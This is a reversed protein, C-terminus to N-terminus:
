KVQPIPPSYGYPVALDGFRRRLQYGIAMGSPLSVATWGAVIALIIV